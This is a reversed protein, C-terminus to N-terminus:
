GAGVLLRGSIMTGYDWAVIIAWKRGLLENTLPMIFAGFVAGLPAGSVVLSDQKSTLHIDQPMYLNAGSITSMDLGLLMGGISALSALVITFYRKNKISLVYRLKYGMREQEQQLREILNQADNDYNEDKNANEEGLIEDEMGGAEVVAKDHYAENILADSQYFESSLKKSM